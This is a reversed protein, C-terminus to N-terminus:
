RHSLAYLHGDASGIYLVGDRIVPSSLFAGLDLFKDVAAMASEHTYESGFLNAVNWTGEPTLIDNPDLASAETHFEWELNGSQADYAFLAGGCTGVYVMGAAISPSSYAYTKTSSQFLVDGTVADAATLTFSDSTGFYLKGDHVAASGLVWSGSTDFKWAEEGTLTNVAHLGGDRGGIYVMGGAVVPSSQLGHQNYYQTETGAQFHWREEGTLADLAYLRSEMNGVYLTGDAIAPSSHVTDATEFAWITAGDAADLAYVMGEGTGFYVVGEVVVPSSLYFDWPDVHVEDRPTMGDLNRAEWRREGTTEFRWDLEGTESSLAYFSGDYSGFFVRGGVVAPSSRVAGGTEFKWLESGTDAAVAYLYGDDSGFFAVGDAVAPSSMVRGETQFAWLVSPTEEVGQTLYVGTHRVDGRFLATESPGSCAVPLLACIICLAFIFVVSRERRSTRPV